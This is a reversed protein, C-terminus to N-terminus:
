FIAPRLGILAEIRQDFEANSNSGAEDTKANIYGVETDNYSTVVLYDGEHTVAIIPLNRNIIYAGQEITSGSLDMMNYHELSKIAELPTKNEKLLKLLATLTANNLDMTYQLSRNGREWIYNNAYDTVVGVSEDAKQIAEAALHYTGLLKGEGYVFFLEKDINEEKAAMVLPKEYLMLKPSLIKTEKNAIGDGFSIRIQTGLNKDVYPELVINSAKSEENNVVHDDKIPHYKNNEKKMPHITIMNGEIVVDKIFIGEEQYSKVEEGKKNLIKLEKIAKQKIGLVNELTDEESYIGYVFDNYVFGLPTIHEKEGESKLTFEKGSELNYLIIKEGDKYAIRTGDASIVHEKEGIDKTKEVGSSANIEYLYENTVISITDRNKSYYIHGELKEELIEFSEKSEIFIREEITNQKTNYYYIGTGTKGEHNGRNMYGVVAFITDGDDEVKLIKFAHNNISNRLDLSEKDNFAFIKALESKDKNYNWIEGGQIFSVINGDKNSLYQQNSSGYGLNLGKATVIDDTKEIVEEATRLYDLLYFTDREKDYRVKYFENVELRSGSEDEGLRVLYELSVATYNSRLEKVNFKVKGIISPALDGWTVAEYNNKLTVRAANTNTVAVDTELYKAIDVEDSKDLTSNHFSYIFNFCNEAAVKEGETIRTYYYVKEKKGIDLAICLLREEDLLGEKTLGLNVQDGIKTEEKNYLKKEGDLTYVTYELSKIKNDYAMVSVNLNENYVPTIVDRISKLDLEGLNGSLINVGFEKSAFSIQPLTPADMDAMMTDKGDNTIASFIFIALIFVAILIGANTLHKKRIM